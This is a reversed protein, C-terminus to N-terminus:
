RIYNIHNIYNLSSNLKNLINNDIKNKKVKEAFTIASTLIGKVRSQFNSPGDAGKKLEM